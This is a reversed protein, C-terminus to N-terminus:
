PCYALQVEGFPGITRDVPECGFSEENAFQLRLPSSLDPAIPYATELLRQEFEEKFRQSYYFTEAKEERLLQVAAAVEAPLAWREGGFPKEWEHFQEIKEPWGRTFSRRMDDLTKGIVPFFALALLPLLLRARRM